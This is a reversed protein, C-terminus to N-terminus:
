EAEVILSSSGFRRSKFIIEMKEQRQPKPFTVLYYHSWVNKVPAIKMLPDEKEVPKIAIPKMGNLSVSFDPNFLGQKDPDSYDDDIFVSMLFHARKDSRYEKLLPNLYTTVLSAKIEMSNYIEAKQTYSLAKQELLDPSFFGSRSACGGMIWLSFFLITLVKM